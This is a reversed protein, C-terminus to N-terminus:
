TKAEKIRGDASIPGFVRVARWAIQQFFAADARTLGAVVRRQGEADTVTVRAPMGEPSKGYLAAYFVCAALYSGKTNPHSHDPTHLVLGPRARFACKWAEGVPAVAAGCERATRTYTETLNAQLKPLHERAWTLFFLTRAGVKCIEANFLRAFKRTIWPDM